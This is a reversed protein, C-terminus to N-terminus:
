ASSTAARGDHVDLHLGDFAHQGIHRRHRGIRGQANRHIHTSYGLAANPTLTATRTAAVYSVAAPVLANAGDRLEFTTTTVNAVNENFTASIASTVAVGSRRQRPQRLSGNAAHYGSGISTVFVVDVWYNESNFTQNPFASAGYRYVGNAGETGDRPAHLPGNDVGSTAFYGDEGSYFGASTHYSVVYLTGATIAVPSPLVAEQWGATSEGTFTVTSLLTGSASWLSGTHTGTNQAAKYFRIATIYGNNDSRFRTGLEVQTPDADPGGAPIQSPSWLSCPCSVPGSGVTVSNGATPQELNGSDDVARSVSSPRARRGPRGHM